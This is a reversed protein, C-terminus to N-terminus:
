FPLEDDYIYPLEDDYKDIYMDQKQRGDHECIPCKVLWCYGPSSEELYNILHKGFEKHECITESCHNEVWFANCAPNKCTIHYKPFGGSTQLCKVVVDDSGCLWCKKRYGTEGGIYYEFVMQLLTKFYETNQPLLAVSGIRCVYTKSEPIIGLNKVIMSNNGAYFPKHASDSHLIFSGNVYDRSKDIYKEKAVDILDHKWQSSQVKYNRYKADMCFHLTLGDKRIYLQYDPRFSDLKDKRELAGNFIIDVCMDLDKHYLSAYTGNYSGAKIYSSIDDTLALLAGTRQNGFQRLEFSYETVFISLMKIYCWYEYIDCIKGTPYKSTDTIDISKLQQQYRKMITFAKHYRSDRQFVPTVSASAYKTLM